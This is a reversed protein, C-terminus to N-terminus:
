HKAETQVGIFMPWQLSVSVCVHHILEGIRKFLILRKQLYETMKYVENGLRLVPSPRSEALM